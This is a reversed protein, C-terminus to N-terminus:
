DNEKHGQDSAQGNQELYAVLRDINARDALLSAWADVRPEPLLWGLVPQCVLLGQSAIFGFPRALELLMLAPSVVGLRRIHHAVDQILTDEANQASAM